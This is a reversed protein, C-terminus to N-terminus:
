VDFHTYVSQLRNYLPYVYPYAFLATRYGLYELERSGFIKAFNQM